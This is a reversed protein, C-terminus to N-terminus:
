SFIGKLFGGGVLLLLKHNQLKKFLQVTKKNGHSSPGIRVREFPGRGTERTKRQVIGRLITSMGVSIVVAGRYRLKAM